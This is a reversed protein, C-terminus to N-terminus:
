DPVDLFGERRLSDQAINFAELDIEDPYVQLFILGDPDSDPYIIAKVGYAYSFLDALSDADLDDVMRKLAAAAQEVEILFSPDSM